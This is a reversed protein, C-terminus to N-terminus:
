KKKCLLIINNGHERIFPIKNIFKDLRTIKVSLSENLFKSLLGDLIHFPYKDLIEISYAKLIKYIYQQAFLWQTHSEHMYELTIVTAPSKYEKKGLYEFGYSSEFELIMYGGTKLVRSLESIASIADCYNIVSGVCIIGNFMENPYPIKEISGVVYNKCTKIKEEAIDIHYMEQCEIGYDNGGSGANLIISNKFINQHKDIYKSLQEHSYTHWVDDAAWIEPIRNYFEGIDKLNVKKLIIVERM